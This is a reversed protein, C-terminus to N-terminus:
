QKRVATRLHVGAGLLMYLAMAVILIAIGAGSLSLFLQRSQASMTDMGFTALMTGELTLMSVSASALSIAKSASLLPSNYKRYKVANVIAMTLAAFAYAAMAITTIEHHRVLRNEHVMHFIIVSLAVNMPLFLGGCFCYRRWEAQMSQGLPHRLSYHVLFFRMVALLFYYAALAGFWLARHYICLGLQMLAYSGNWLISGTLTVNMRLRADGLWRQILRNNAKFARVRRVLAPIRACWIVLAYTSLTYAAMRAPHAEGLCLMAYVLFGASAPALLLAAARPPFLLRKGWGKLRARGKNMGEAGM